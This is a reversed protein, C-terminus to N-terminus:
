LWIIKGNQRNVTRQIREYGNARGRKRKIDNTYCMIPYFYITFICLIKNQFKHLNGISLFVARRPVSRLAPPRDFLLTSIKGGRKKDKNKAGLRARATIEPTYCKEPAIIWSTLRFFMMVNQMNVHQITHPLNRFYNMTARHEVWSEPNIYHVTVTYTTEM